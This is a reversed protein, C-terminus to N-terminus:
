ATVIRLEQSHLGLQSPLRFVLQWVREAYTLGLIISKRERTRDRVINFIFFFFSLSVDRAREILKCGIFM